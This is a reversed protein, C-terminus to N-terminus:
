ITDELAAHTTTQLMRKKKRALIVPPYTEKMALGLVILAADFISTTWFAWRWTTYQTIFSGVVAGVSPGIM